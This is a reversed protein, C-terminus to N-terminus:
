RRCWVLLNDRVSVVQEISLVARINATRREAQADRFVNFVARGRPTLAARVGRLFPRGFMGRPPRGAHFLDVAIYDFAGGCGDVFRLADALVLQVHEPLPGFAARGLAVARADDDVGVLDCAGFRQVLLRAVTGGGFGLLLGRRPQHAPLMQAWYGDAAAGAAVSQVFGGVLLAPRGRDEGVVVPAARWARDSESLERRDM